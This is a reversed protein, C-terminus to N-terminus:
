APPSKGSAGLDESTGQARPTFYVKHEMCYCQEGCVGAVECMLVVWLDTKHPSEKLVSETHHWCWLLPM